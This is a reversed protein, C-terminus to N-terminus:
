KKALFVNTLDKHAIWLHTRYTYHVWRLGRHCLSIYLMYVVTSHTNQTNIKNESINAIQQRM